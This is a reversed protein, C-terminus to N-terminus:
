GHDEFGEPVAPAVDNIGYKRELYDEEITAFLSQLYASVGSKTGHTWVRPRFILDVLEFNVWDLTGITDENLPVRGRSTIMVVRPPRIKFGVKIQLYPFVEDGEERPETYRVNMGDMRLQEALQTPLVVCFNRSGAANFATERGEFNRYMLRANEIVVTGDAEAM